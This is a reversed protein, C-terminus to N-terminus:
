KGFDMGKDAGSPTSLIDGFMSEAQKVRDERKSLGAPATHNKVDDMPTGQQPEVFEIAPRSFDAIPQGPHEKEWQAVDEAFAWQDMSFDIDDNRDINRFHVDERFALSGLSKLSDLKDGLEHGVEPANSPNLIEGRKHESLHEVGYIDLQDFEAWDKEDMFHYTADMYRASEIISASTACNMYALGNKAAVLDDGMYQSEIQLLAGESYHEMGHLAQTYYDKMEQRVNAQESVPSDWMKSVFKGEISEHLRADMSNKVGLYMDLSNDNVQPFVGLDALARGNRELATFRDAETPALVPWDKASTVMDQTLDLNTLPNVSVEFGSKLPAFVNNEM